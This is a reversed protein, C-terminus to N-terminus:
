GYTDWFYETQRKCHVCHSKYMPSSAVKDFYNAEEVLLCHTSALTLRGNGIVMDLPSVGLMEEPYVEAASFASSSVLACALGAILITKSISM